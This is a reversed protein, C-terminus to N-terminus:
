YKNKVLNFENRIINMFLDSQYLCRKLKIPMQNSIYYVPSILILNLNIDRAQIILNDIIDADFIEKVGIGFPVKVGIGFPMMKDKSRINITNFIIYKTNIGINDLISDIKKDRIFSILSFSSDIYQDVYYSDMEYLINHLLEDSNSDYTITTISSNEILEKFYNTKIDTVM